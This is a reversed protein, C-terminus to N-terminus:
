EGGKFKIGTYHAEEEFFVWESLLTQM